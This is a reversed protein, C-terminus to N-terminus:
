EPFVKLWNMSSVGGAPVLKLVVWLIEPLRVKEDANGSWANPATVGSENVNESPTVVKLLSWDSFKTVM